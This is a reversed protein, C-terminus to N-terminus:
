REYPEESTSEPVPDPITRPPLGLELKSAVLQARLTQREAETVAKLTAPSNHEPVVAALPETSWEGRADRVRRAAETLAAVAEAAMERYADHDARLTATRETEETKLLIGAAAKRELDQALELRMQKREALWDLVCALVYGFPVLVFLIRNVWMRWIMPADAMLLISFVAFTIGLFVRLVHTRINIMTQIKITGNIGSARQYDRESLKKGVLAMSLLILVCACVLSAVLLVYLADITGM